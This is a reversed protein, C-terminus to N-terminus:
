SSLLTAEIQSQGCIPGKPKLVSIIQAITCPIHLIFGDQGLHPQNHTERRARCPPRFGGKNTDNSSLISRTEALHDSAPLLKKMM